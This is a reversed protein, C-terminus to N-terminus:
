LTIRKDPYELTVKMVKEIGHYIDTKFLLFSIEIVLIGMWLLTM